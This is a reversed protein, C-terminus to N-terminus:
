VCIHYLVCVCWIYSKSSNTGNITGKNFILILFSVSFSFFFLLLIFVFVVVVVVVVVFLLMNLSASTDTDLKRKCMETIDTQHNITWRPCLRMTTNSRQQSKTKNM